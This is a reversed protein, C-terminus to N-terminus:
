RPAGALEAEVLGTLEGALLEVHRNAVQESTGGIRDFCFLDTVPLGQIQEVIWRAADTPTLVNLKPLSSPRGKAKAGKYTDRARKAEARVEALTREPDDALLINALGGMRAAGEPHGGAELGARYPTLLERDLWLLGLGLEGALRAGKPGRVGLWSPVPRQIPPPTATTSEWLSELRRACRELLDMRDERAVGFADFEEARWGAGLGLELRGSSLIDVVAAEEAVHQPHRLSALLIATGIRVTRTAAALAACFILPQPLYGDKFGHHETTWVSPLGAREAVVVREIARRYVEDWPQLSGPNRLDLYLGIRPTRQTDM